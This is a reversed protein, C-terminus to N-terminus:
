DEKKLHLEVWEVQFKKKAYEIAKELSTANVIGYFQTLKPAFCFYTKDM